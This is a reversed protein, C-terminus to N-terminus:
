VAGWVRALARLNSEMVEASQAAGGKLKRPFVREFKPLKGAMAAGTLAAVNYTQLNRVEAERELLADANREAGTQRDVVVGDIGVKGIGASDSRNASGTRIDRYSRIKRGCM